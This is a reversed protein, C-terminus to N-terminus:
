LFLVETKEPERLFTMFKEFNEGEYFMADEYKALVGMEELACAEFYSVSDISDFDWYGCQQELVKLLAECSVDNGDLQITRKLTMTIEM